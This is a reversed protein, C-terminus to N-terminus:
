FEILVQNKEVSNGKKVKVSKVVGDGPAKIINEMKMAELILLPDNQKVQDGEKVKLDIILGPMPAKVSNLKGSAFNQMGMKELLLDVKNKVTVAFTIGNVKITIIKGSSDRSVIEAQYSRNNLIVNFYNDAIELIDPTVRKGNVVYGSEDPLIDHEAGNIIAKYM